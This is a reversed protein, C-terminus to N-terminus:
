KPLSRPGVTGASSCSERRSACGTSCRWLVNVTLPYCDDLNAGPDVADTSLCHVAAIKCTPTLAAKVLFWRQNREIRETNSPTTVERVGGIVTRSSYARCTRGVVSHAREAVGARTDRPYFARVVAPPSHQTKRSRTCVWSREANWSSQRSFPTETSTRVTRRGAHRGSRPISRTARAVWPRDPAAM